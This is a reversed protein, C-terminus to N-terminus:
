IYKTLQLQSFVKGPPQILQFYLWSLGWQAPAQASSPLILRFKFLYSLLSHNCGIQAPTLIKNLNFPILDAFLAILESIISTAPYVLRLALETLAPNTWSFLKVLIIYLLNEKTKYYQLCLLILFIHFLIYFSSTLLIFNTPGATMINRSRPCICLNALEPNSCIWYKM